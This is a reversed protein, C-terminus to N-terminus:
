IPKKLYDGVSEKPRIDLYKGTTSISEHGLSRQVVHIPAGKEIAHTASTHRLWHPSPSVSLKARRAVTKIMRWIQSVSIHDQELSSNRTAFLYDGDSLEAIWDYFEEALWDPIHISRVKKRKGEVILICGSENKQFSKTTLKALEDIRIGTYYFLKIILENRKNKSYMIMRQVQEESLVKSSIREPVRISQLALTPNFTLYGSKCAFAFLSSIANKYTNKTSDSTKLLKVFVAVHTVNVSKLNLIPYFKFFEVVVRRYYKQTKPSKQFIWSAILGMDERINTLEILNSM